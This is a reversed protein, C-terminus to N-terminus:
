VRGQVDARMVDDGLSGDRMDTLPSPPPPPPDMRDHAATPKNLSGNSIFVPLVLNFISM